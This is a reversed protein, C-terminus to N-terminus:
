DRLGKWNTDFSDPTFHDSCVKDTRKVDDNTLRLRVLWQPFRRYDKFPFSFLCIKHESQTKWCIICFHPMRSIRSLCVNAARERYGPEAFFVCSRQCVSARVRALATRHAPADQVRSILPHRVHLPQRACTM